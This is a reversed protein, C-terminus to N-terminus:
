PLFPSKDDECFIVLLFTIFALKARAQGHGQGDKITLSEGSGIIQTDNKSSSM